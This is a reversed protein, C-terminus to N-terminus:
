RFRNRNLLGKKIFKNKEKKKTIQKHKKMKKYTLM